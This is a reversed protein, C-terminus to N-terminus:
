RFDKLIIKDNKEYRNSSFVKIYELLRKGKLVFDIFGFIWYFFTQVYQITHKYETFVQQLM